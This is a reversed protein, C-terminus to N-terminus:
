YAKKGLIRQVARFFIIKVEENYGKETDKDEVHSINEFDFKRMENLNDTEFCEILLNKRCMHVVDM